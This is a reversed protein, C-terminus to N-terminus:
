PSGSSERGPLGSDRSDCDPPRVEFLYFLTAGNREVTYVPRGPARLHDQFRTTAMVFHPNGGALPVARFLRRGEPTLELYHQTQHLVSYGAVRIPERCDARAFRRLLWECGEKYSLCWYDGEYRDIGAKMGGAVLRNFYVSEYPHLRVMDLLTVLCAAALVSVGAVKAARGAPSRLFVSVSVGALVALLPVLFLFHRLGDYLPMRNVVVGAVLLAPISALWGAQLLKRRADSGLPGRRWLLVLGALGLVFAVLYLEPLTLAFWNPLYFRSVEKAPQVRGDYLLPMDEWFRSFRGAARFPNRLPDHMAWPWLAVMVTWGVVLAASWAGALRLLSGRSPWAPRGADGQLLLTALWLVLAFGFLVLGGVRVAAALGILAGVGLARGWSTGPWADCALIGSVALVSLAAFPIDKSNFFANGYFPPTLALFLLALSAGRPGDLRRAIRLVALFAVFAFGVDALHRSAYTELPSVRVVLEAVMEALGGYKANDVDDETVRPENGLTAYWRLLRRGMRHQVGDDSSIGYDRFTALM